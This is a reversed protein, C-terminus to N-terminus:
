SLALTPLFVRSAFDLDKNLRKSAVAAAELKIQACDAGKPCKQEKGFISWRCRKRGHQRRM